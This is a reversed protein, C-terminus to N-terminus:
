DGKLPLAEVDLGELLKKEERRALAVSGSAFGAGLLGSVGTPILFSTLAIRFPLGAGFLRPSLLVPLAVGGLFGWLAVRMLSLQDLTRRREAISLIVAFSGGAIFGILAGSVATGVLNGFPLGISAGIAVWGVSWGVAWTIGTGIIGRLKRFFAGMM